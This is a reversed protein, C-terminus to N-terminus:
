NNEEKMTGFNKKLIILESYNLQINKLYFKAEIGLNMILDLFSLNPVFKKTFLQFYEPFLIDPTEEIRYAFAIKPVYEETMQFDPLQFIEQIVKICQFNFEWLYEPTNQYVKEIIQWYHEFYASNKYAYFIKKLHQKQWNQKYCIKVECVKPFMGEYTVPITLIDIGNGGLIYARNFNRQKRYTQVRSIKATSHHELLYKLWLVDGWYFCPLVESNKPFPLSHM